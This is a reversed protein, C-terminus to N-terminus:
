GRCRVQWRNMSCNMRNMDLLVMHRLRLWRWHLEDHPSGAGGAGRPPATPTRSAWRGRGRRAGAAALTLAEAVDEDGSALTDPVWAGAARVARECDLRLDRTLQGSLTALGLPLAHLCCSYLAWLFLELYARDRTLSNRIFYARLEVFIFM